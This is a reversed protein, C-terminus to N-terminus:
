RFGLVRKWWPRPTLGEAKGSVAVQPTRTATLANKLYDRESALLGVKELLDAKERELRANDASLAECRYSLETVERLVSTNSRCEAEGDERHTKCVAATVQSAAPAKDHPSLWGSVEGTGAAVPSGALPRVCPAGVPLTPSAWRLMFSSIVWRLPIRAAASM